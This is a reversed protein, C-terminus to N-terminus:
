NIELSFVLGDMKISKFGEGNLLFLKSFKSILLNSNMDLACVLITM